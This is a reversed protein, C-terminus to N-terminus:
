TTKDCYAMRCLGKNSNSHTYGKSNAMNRFNTMNYNTMNVVLIRVKSLPTWTIRLLAATPIYQVTLCDM